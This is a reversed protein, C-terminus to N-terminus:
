SEMWKENKLKVRLYSTTRFHSGFSTSENGIIKKLKEMNDNVVVDSLRSKMLYEDIESETRTITTNKYKRHRLYFIILLIIIFAFVSFVCVLIVNLNSSNEKSTLIINLIISTNSIENYATIKTSLANPNNRLSLYLFNKLEFATFLSSFSPLILYDNTYNSIFQFNYNKLYIPLALIPSLIQENDDHIKHLIFYNIGNESIGDIVDTKTCFSGVFSKFKRPRVLDTFICSYYKTYVHNTKTIFNTENLITTNYEYIHLNSSLIYTLTFNTFNNQTSNQFSDDLINFNLLTVTYFVYDNNYSSKTITLNEITYNGIIVAESTNMTLNVKIIRLSTNMLVLIVYFTSNETFNKVFYTQLDVADSMVLFSSNNFNTDSITAPPGCEYTNNNKKPVDFIYITKRKKHLELYYGEDVLFFIHYDSMVVSIYNEFSTKFGTVNYKTIQLITSFAHSIYFNTLNYEYSKLILGDKYTCIVFLLNYINHLLMDKCNIEDNGPKDNYLIEYNQSYVNHFTLNKESLVILIGDKYLAKIFDGYFNLVNKYEEEFDIIKQVFPYFDYYYIENNTVFYDNYIKYNKIPGFYPFETINIIYNSGDLEPDVLNLVSNNYGNLTIISNSLSINVIIKFFIMEQMMENTFSTILTYKYYQQNILNPDHFVEPINAIIDCVKYVSISIGSKPNLTVFVSSSTFLNHFFAHPLDNNENVVIPYIKDNNPDYLIKNRLLKSTPETVNYIVIYNNMDRKDIINLCLFRDNCKFSSVFNYNFTPYNRLLTVDLSLRLTYEEIVDNVYDILIILPIEKNILYIDTFNNLNQQYKETFSFIFPDGISPLLIEFFILKNDGYVIFCNFMEIFDIYFKNIQSLKALDDTFYYIFENDITLSTDNDKTKLRYVRILIENALSQCFFIDKTEYLYIYDCYVNKSNYPLDSIEQNENIEDYSYARVYLLGDRTNIIHFNKYRLAGSFSKNYQDNIFSIVCDEIFYNADIFCDIIYFSLDKSTQWYMTLHTSNLTLSLFESNSISNYNIDINNNKKLYDFSVNFSKHCDVKFNHSPPTISQIKVIKLPGTVWNTYPILINESDFSYTLSQSNDYFSSMAPDFYLHFDNINWYYINIVSSYNENIILNFSFNQM